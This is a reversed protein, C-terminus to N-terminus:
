KANEVRQLDHCQSGCSEEVLAKADLMASEGEQGGSAEEKKGGGCAVLLVGILLAVVVLSLAFGIRKRM